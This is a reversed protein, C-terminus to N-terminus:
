RTAPRRLHGGSAPNLGPRDVNHEILKIISDIDIGNETIPSDLIGKGKDISSVFAPIEYIRNIFDESYNIVSEILSERQKASPELQLAISELQKIRELM